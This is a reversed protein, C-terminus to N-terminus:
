ANELEDQVARMLQPAQTIAAFSPMEIPPSMEMGIRATLENASTVDHGTEVLLDWLQLYTLDPTRVPPAQPPAAAVVPPAPAAQPQTPAANVPMLTAKIQDYYARDIGRKKRWTGDAVKVKTKADIRKDWVRGEADVEGGPTPEVAAPPAPAVQPPEVAAPPAPAVQPPAVVATAGVPPDAVPLASPIGQDLADSGAARDEAASLMDNIREREAAIEEPTADDGLFATLIITM